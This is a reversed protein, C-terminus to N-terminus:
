PAEKKALAQQQEDVLACLGKYLFLMAPVCLLHDLKLCYYLWALASSDNHTVVAIMDLSINEMSAINIQNDFFHAAIVDLNWLIFFFASYRILRWGKQQELGKGPLTFILVVMSFLFFIHGVQHTIIGESSSHLQIAWGNHPLLLCAAAMFPIWKVLRFM